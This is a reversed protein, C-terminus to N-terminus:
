LGDVALQYLAQERRPEAAMVRAFLEDGMDELLLFGQQPDCAYIEPAALGLKQLHRAVAVFPRVDEFHPPADMLVASEGGRVLRYYRRFSADDALLSRRAHGWGCRTLFDATLRERDIM